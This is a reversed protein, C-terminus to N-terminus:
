FVWESTSLHDCENCIWRQHLGRSDHKTGYKSLNTSGCHTCKEANDRLEQIFNQIIGETEEYLTGNTVTLDVMDDWTLEEKNFTDYFSGNERIEIDDLGNWINVRPFDIELRETDKLGDTNGSQKYGETIKYTKKWIRVSVLGGISSEGIDGNAVRMTAIKKIEQYNTLAKEIKEINYNLYQMSPVLRRTIEKWDKESYPSDSYEIDYSTDGKYGYLSGNKCLKLFDYKNFIKINEEDEIDTLDFTNGDEDYTVAYTYPFKTVNERTIKVCYGEDREDMRKTTM